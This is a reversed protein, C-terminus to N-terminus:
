PWFSPQKGDSAVLNFAKPLLWKTHNDAFLYNAGGSHRHWALPQADIESRFSNVFFVTKAFSEGRLIDPAPLAIIGARADAVIATLSPFPIAADHQAKVGTEPIPRNSTMARFGIFTNYAYGTLLPTVLGTMRGPRLTDPCSLLTKGKYPTILELWILGKTQNGDRRFEGSHYPPYSGDNDSCYSSIAMGLQRLNSLCSNQRAKERAALFAPIIIAAMLAVIGVVMLLEILTFGKKMKILPDDGVPILEAPIFRNSGPRGM